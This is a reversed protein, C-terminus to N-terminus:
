RPEGLPPIGELPIGQHLRRVCESHLDGEYGLRDCRQGFFATMLVAAMVCVIVLWVAKATASGTKMDHVSMNLLMLIAHAGKQVAAM